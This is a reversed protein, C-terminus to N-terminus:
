GRAPRREEAQIEGDHCPKCASEHNAPDIFLAWDGRHPTRHNVVTMPTVKGRELCRECLPQKARQRARAASWVALSYWRRWPAEVSRKRDLQKNDAARKAQSQRARANPPRSPM